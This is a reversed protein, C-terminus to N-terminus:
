RPYTSSILIALAEDGCDMGVERRLEERTQSFRARLTGADVLQGRHQCALELGQGLAMAADVFSASLEFPLRSFMYKLEIDNWQGEDFGFVEEGDLSIEVEVISSHQWPVCRGKRDMSVVDDHLTFGLQRFLPLLRSVDAPIARAFRVSEVERLYEFESM